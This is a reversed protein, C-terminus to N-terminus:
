CQGPSSLGRTAGLGASGGKRGGPQLGGPLRFESNGRDQGRM